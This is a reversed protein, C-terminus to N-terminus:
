DKVAIVYGIVACIVVYIFKAYWQGWLVTIAVAKLEMSERGLWNTVPVLSKYSADLAFYNLLPFFSMILLAGFIPYTIIKYEYLNKGIFILVVTMVLYAVSSIISAVLSDNNVINQLIAYVVIVALFAYGKNM